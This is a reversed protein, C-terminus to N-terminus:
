ETSIALKGSHNYMKVGLLLSPGPQEADEDTSPIMVTKHNKIKTMRTLM